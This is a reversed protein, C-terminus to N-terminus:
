LSVVSVTTNKPNFVILVGVVPCISKFHKLYKRVQSFFQEVHYHKDSKKLELIYKTRQNDIRNRPTYILDARGNGCYVETGEDFFNYPIVVESQVDGTRALFHHLARQLNSETYQHRLDLKSCVSAVAERINQM